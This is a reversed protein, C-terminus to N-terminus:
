KIKRRTFEFILLRKNYNAEFHEIQAKLSEQELEIM